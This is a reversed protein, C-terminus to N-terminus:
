GLTVKSGMKDSLKGEYDKIERALMMVLAEMYEVETFVGKKILLHAVAAQNVMAMNVGVRLHKPTQDSTMGVESMAKIGSQVAHALRGYEVRLEGLKKETANM